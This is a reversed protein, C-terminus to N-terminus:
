LAFEGVAQDNWDIGLGPRDPVVLHGDKLPFPETLVRPVGLRAV